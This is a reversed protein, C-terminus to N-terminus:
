AWFFGALLAAIAVTSLSCRLGTYWRSLGYRYFRLLDYAWLTALLVVLTLYAQPMPMWVVLTLALAALM